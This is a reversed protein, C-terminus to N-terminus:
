KSFLIPVTLKVCVPFGNIKGPIWNPFSQIVRIAENDLLPDVKKILNLIKVNGIKDIYFSVMVRGNIGKSLAEEPYRINNKIFEKLWNSNDSPFKPMEDAVLYVTDGYYYEVPGYKEKGFDYESEGFITTNNRFKLYTGNLVLKEKEILSRLNYKNVNLEKKSKYTYKAKISDGIYYEIASYTLNDNKFITAYFDYNSKDSFTKYDKYYITDVIQAFIHSYQFVCLISIILIKLKSVLNM